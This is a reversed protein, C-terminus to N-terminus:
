RRESLLRGRLELSKTICLPQKLPQYMHLFSWTPLAPGISTCAAICQQLEDDEKASVTVLASLMDLCTHVHQALCAAVCATVTCWVTHVVKYVASTGCSDTASGSCLTAQAECM